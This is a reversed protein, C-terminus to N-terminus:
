RGESIQISFLDYLFELKKRLDKNYLKNIPLQPRPKWHDSIEALDRDLTWTHSYTKQNLSAVAAVQKESLWGSALRDMKKKDLVNIKMNEIKAFDLISKRLSYKEIGMEQLREMFESATEFQRGSLKLIQDMTDPNFNQGNQLKKTVQSDVRYTIPQYVKQDFTNQMVFLTFFSILCSILPTTVWGMSIRGMVSFNINRAGMALGIGLVSGVVAQSSSVPVLPISPLNHSILWNELNESAFLFLVISQSLVAVLAALPSLRVLGSGVTGMVKYSYTYVGIGIFISGILFLQQVGTFAFGLIEINRFPSSEVFVGMVNAINNAGLSYSGFAGVLILGIRTLADMRFMHIRSHDMVYTLIKFLIMAFIGALIPCLIWSSVIKTLSSYDTLSGSFFNWGIIAGVVAQSTSVPLELKTMGAVTIAAAFAVIFAGAMENVAGLKGLTHSAGAGSTVAGLILFVACIFAATRFRVMKTGVATGFVNAADNAGLSWGLFLGSSLYILIM